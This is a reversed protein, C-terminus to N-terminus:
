LLSVRLVGINRKILQTVNVFIYTHVRSLSEKTLNGIVVAIVSVPHGLSM